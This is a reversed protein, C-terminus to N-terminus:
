FCYEDTGRQCGSIHTNDVRLYKPTIQNLYIVTYSKYELYGQGGLVPVTGEWRLIDITNQQVFTGLRRM